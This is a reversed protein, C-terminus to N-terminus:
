ARKEPTSAILLPARREVRRGDVLSPLAFAAMADPRGSFPRLEAGDYHGEPVQYKSAQKPAAPVPGWAYFSPMAGPTTNHARGRAVVNNVITSALARTLACREAVQAVTIPRERTASRLALEVAERAPSRPRGRPDAPRPQEMPYHRGVDSLRATM